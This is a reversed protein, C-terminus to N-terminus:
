TDIRGRSPYLTRIRQLAPEVIKVLSISNDLVSKAHVPGHDTFLSVGDRGIYQNTCIHPVSGLYPRVLRDIIGQLIESFPVGFSNAVDAMGALMDEIEDHPQEGTTVPHSPNSSVM